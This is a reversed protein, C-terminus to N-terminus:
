DAVVQAYVSNVWNFHQVWGFLRVHDALIEFDNGDSANSASKWITWNM